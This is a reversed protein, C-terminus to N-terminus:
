KIINNKKNNKLNKVDFKDFDVILKPYSVQGGEVGVVGKEDDKLLYGFYWPGSVEGYVSFMVPKDINVDDKDVFTENVTNIYETLSKM